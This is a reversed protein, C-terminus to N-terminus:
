ILIQSKHVRKDNSCVLCDTVDSPMYYVLNDIGNNYIESYYKHKNILMDPDLVMTYYNIRGSTLISDILFMLSKAQLTDALAMGLRLRDGSTTVDPKRSLECLWSYYDCSWKTDILLGNMYGSGQTPRGLNEVVDDQAGGVNMLALYPNERYLNSQNCGCGKEKSNQVPIAGTPVQYVFYIRENLDDRIDTLDIVLPTSFTGTFFEKNGNVTVTATGLSTTFDLSSYVNVDVNTPGSIGSWFALQVSDITIKGGRIKYPELWVSAYDGKLQSARKFYNDGIVEFPAFRETKRTQVSILFDSLFKRIAQTRSQILMDWVSGTTCDSGANAWNIPITNNQAIYLGSKSTNLTTFDVPKSDDWCPCDTDALGIVNNLCDLM